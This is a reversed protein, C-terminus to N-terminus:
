LGLPDQGGVAKSASRSSLSVLKFTGSPKTHSAVKDIRSKAPKTPKVARELEDDEAHSRKSGAGKAHAFEEAESRTPFSKHKARPFGKVQLQPAFSSYRLPLARAQLCEPCEFTSFISVQQECEDWSTYVGPKRGIQVAYWKALNVVQRNGVIRRVSQTKGVACRQNHGFGFFASIPM